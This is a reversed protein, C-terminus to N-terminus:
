VLFVLMQADWLCSLVLVVTRGDMGGAAGAPPRLNSASSLLILDPM